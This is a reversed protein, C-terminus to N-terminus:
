NKLFQDIVANERVILGQPDFRRLLQQARIYTEKGMM